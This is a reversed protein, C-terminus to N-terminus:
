AGSSPFPFLSALPVNVSKPQSVPFLFFPSPIKSNLSAVADSRPSIPPPMVGKQRVYTYEFAKDTITSCDSIMVM